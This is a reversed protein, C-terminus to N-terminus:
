VLHREYASATAGARSSVGLKNFINSVHRAVTKESIFLSEAISKNTKGTALHRLVQLERESLGGAGRRHVTEERDEGRGPVTGESNKSKMEPLKETKALAPAAGLRRFVHRAAELEVACADDDGLQECARAILVRTEAEEYPMELDLWATWAQRLMTLASRANGEALHVAGTTQASAASLAPAGFLVAIESLEGAAARAADLDHAALMIEIGAPLLTARRREQRTEALISRISAAASEVEGCAMRLLSLGPQATRGCHTAQRFTEEADNMEGRLRQIEGIRYFAAGLMPHSVRSSLLECARRADDVAEPWDGQAQKIEARYILCEGRYRVLDPQSACWQVLSETWERGRRLDFIEHCGELVSCYIDGALMPMVDGAIVAVMAEDLLAVGEAIRGLRILARGRGHCSLAALDRDAFRDAYESAQTFTAYGAVPDADTQQIARPVLLYGLVVSDHGGEDILKAARGLWGSAPAYAGRHLLGFALWFACRAAAERDDRALFQQHARVRVAESEADDGILYAATALRDLDEAVLPTERDAVQLQRVADGWAHREFSERGQTLADAASM